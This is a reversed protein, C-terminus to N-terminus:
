FYFTENKWTKAKKAIKYLSKAEKKKCFHLSQFIVKRVYKIMGGFLNFRYLCLIGWKLARSRDNQGRAQNQIESFVSKHYWAFNWDTEKVRVKIWPIM